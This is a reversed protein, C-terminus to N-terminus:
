SFSSRMMKLPSALLTLPSKKSPSLRNLPDLINESSLAPENLGFFTLIVMASSSFLRSVDLKFRLSVLPMKLSSKPVLSRTSLSKPFSGFLTLSYHSCSRM